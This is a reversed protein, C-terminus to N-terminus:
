GGPIVQKSVSALGTLGAIYAVADATALPYGIEPPLIAAGAHISDPAYNMFVGGLGITFAAVGGVMGAAVAVAKIAIPM